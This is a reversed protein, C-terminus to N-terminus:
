NTMQQNIITDNLVSVDLYQVTTYGSAVFELDYRDVPVELFYNGDSDTTDLYQKYPSNVMTLRVLVDPLDDGTPDSVRGQMDPLELNNGGGGDLTQCSLKAGLKPSPPADFVPEDTCAAFLSVGAILCAIRYSVKKTTM